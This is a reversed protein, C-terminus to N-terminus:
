VTYALMCHRITYSRSGNEPTTVRPTPAAAAAAAPLYLVPFPCPSSSKSSPAMCASRDASAIKAELWLWSAVAPTETDIVHMRGGTHRRRLLVSSETTPNRGACATTKKGRASVDSIVPRAHRHLRGRGLLLLRRMCV